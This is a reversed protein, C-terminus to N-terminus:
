SATRNEPLVTFFSSGSLLQVNPSELCICIEHTLALMQIAAPSPISHLSEWGACSAKSKHCDNNSERGVPVGVDQGAEQDAAILALQTTLQRM